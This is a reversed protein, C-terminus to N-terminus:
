TAKKIKASKWSTKHFPISSFFFFLSVSFLPQLCLPLTVYLSALLLQVQGLLNCCLCCYCCSILPRAALSSVSPSFVVRDRRLKLASSVCSVSCLEFLLLSPPILSFFLTFAVNIGCVIEAFLKQLM